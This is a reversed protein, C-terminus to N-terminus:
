LPVHASEGAVGQRQHQRATPAGSQLLEGNTSAMQAAKIRSAVTEDEKHEASVVVTEM